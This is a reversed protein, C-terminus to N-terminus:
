RNCCKQQYHLESEALSTNDDVGKDKDDNNVNYFGRSTGTM